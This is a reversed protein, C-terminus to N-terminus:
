ERIARDSSFYGSRAVTQLSQRQWNWQDQWAQDVAAQADQYAAFDAM